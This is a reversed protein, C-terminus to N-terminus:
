SKQLMNLSRLDVFEGTSVGHVKELSPNDIIKQINAAVAIFLVVIFLLLVVRLNTFM